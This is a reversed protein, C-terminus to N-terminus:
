NSSLGLENRKEKESESLPESQVRQQRKRRFHKDSRIHRNIRGKSYTFWNSCINCYYIDGVKYIEDDENYPEVQLTKKVTM